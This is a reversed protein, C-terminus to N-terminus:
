TEFPSFTHQRTVFPPVVSESTQKTNKIIGCNQSINLDIYFEMWFYLLNMYFAQLMIKRFPYTKRETWNNVPHKPLMWEFFPIQVLGVATTSISAQVSLMWMLMKLWEPNSCMTSMNDSFQTKLSLLIEVHCIM